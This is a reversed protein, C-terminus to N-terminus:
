RGLKGSKVITIPKILSRIFNAKMGVGLAGDRVYKNLRTIISRGIQITQEFAQEPFGSGEDYMQKLVIDSAMALPLMVNPNNVMEGTTYGATFSVDASYIYGGGPYDCGICTSEDYISVNLLAIGNYSDVIRWTGSILRDVGETVKEHFTVSNISILKGVGLDVPIDPRVFPFSGTLTTPSLFTGVEQELLSEGLGYAMQRQYVTSSGTFMGLQIFLNDNMYVGTLRPVYYIM